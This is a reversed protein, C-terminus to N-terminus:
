LVGGKRESSIKGRIVAISLQSNVIFTDCAVSHFKVGGGTSSAASPQRLPSSIAVDPM